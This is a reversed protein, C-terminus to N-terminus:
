GVQPWHWTASRHLRGTCLTPDGREPTRGPDHDLAEHVFDGTPTLVRAHVADIDWREVIVRRNALADPLTRVDEVVWGGVGTVLALRCERPHTGDASGHSVYHVRDGLEPTM